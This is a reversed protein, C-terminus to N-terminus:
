LNHKDIHEFTLEIHGRFLRPCLPCPIAAEASFKKLCEKRNESQQEAAVQRSACCTVAGKHFLLRWDTQVQAYNRQIM